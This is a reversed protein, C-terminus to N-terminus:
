RSTRDSLKGVEGAEGGAGIAEGTKGVEGERGAWATGNAGNAEALAIIGLTSGIVEDRDYRNVDRAPDTANNTGNGTGTTLTPVPSTSLQPAHVMVTANATTNMNMNNTTDGPSPPIIALGSAADLIQVTLLILAMHNGNTLVAHSM